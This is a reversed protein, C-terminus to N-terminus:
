PYTGPKVFAGLLFVLEARFQVIRISVQPSRVFPQLREIILQELQPVTLGAARLRGVQPLTIYGDSSITTTRDGSEGLDPAVIAIADDPALVYGSPARQGVLSSPPRQADEPRQGPLCPSIMLLSAVLVASERIAYRVRQSRM